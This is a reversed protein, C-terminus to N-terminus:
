EAPSAASRGPRHVASVTGALHDHGRVAAEDVQGVATVVADGHERRGVVPRRETQLARRRTAAVPGRCQMRSGLPPNSNTELWFEFLTVVKATSRSVPPRLWVLENLVGIGTQTFIQDQALERTQPSLATTM